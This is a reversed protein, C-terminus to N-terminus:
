RGKGKSRRVILKGSAKKPNRTKYGRTPKGWPTLPGPHGIPCKGSGGGHPHDIPNMVAGRVTPRWGRHRNIGAKGLKEKEHDSNSVQGVTARCQSPVLRVENSPLKVHCFDDEKALLQASSGASRVMVGGRGPVLEINHVMTGLPMKILPLTNGPKIDADESALVTDGIKIGEPALIYRKEGDKYTILAIFASRNPDYEITKVTGPLVKDRKFDIIRYLRKNGGGRHRIAIKGNSRGATKSLGTVLSKEPVNTTIQSYIISERHRTGATMSKFKKIPM